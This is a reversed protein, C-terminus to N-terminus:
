DFTVDKIEYTLKSDLYKDFDYVIILTVFILCSIM